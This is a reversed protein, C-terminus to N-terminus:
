LSLTLKGALIWGYAVTAALVALNNLSSIGHWMGFQKYLHKIAAEDEATKKEKNEIDYREFMLGTTKPEIFLWNALSAAASVALTVAANSPAAALGGPALYLGGLLVLNAATTLAFYMPFLKSQVRGFMQRPMNKFMTFGVFFSNWVNTGLFIGYAMLHVFSAAQAPMVTTSAATAAVAAAVGVARGWTTNAVSPELMAGQVDDKGSSSAAAAAADTRVQRREVASSM